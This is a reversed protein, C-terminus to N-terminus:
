TGKIPKVGQIKWKSWYTSKKLSLRKRKNNHSETLKKKLMKINIKRKKRSM